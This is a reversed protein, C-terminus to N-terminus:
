DVGNGFSTALKHRTLFMLLIVSHAFCPILKLLLYVKPCFLVMKMKEIIKPLCTMGSNIQLLFVAVSSGM